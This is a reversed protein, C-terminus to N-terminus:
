FVKAKLIWNVGGSKAVFYFPLITVLLSNSPVIVESDGILRSWTKELSQASGLLAGIFM